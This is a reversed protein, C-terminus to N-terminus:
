LLRTIWYVQLYAVLVVVNLWRPRALILAVGASVWLAFKAFPLVSTFLNGYLFMNGAIVLWNSLQIAVVVWVKQTAYYTDLDRWEELNEPFVLAAAMYYLGAIAAGFLLTPFTVTISARDNWAGIWFSILDVIMLLALLPSLWGIRVRHRARLARAFGGFLEALSLGLLLGFLTFAFDFASM